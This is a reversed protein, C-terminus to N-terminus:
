RKPTDYLYHDLQDTFDSPLKALEDAPIEAAIEALVDAIPRADTWEVKEEDAPFVIVRLKRDSFDPVSATIEEWKGEMDLLPMAM